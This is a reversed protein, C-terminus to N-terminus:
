RARRVLPSAHLRFGVITILHFFSLQRSETPVLSFTECCHKITPIIDFYIPVRSSYDSKTVNAIGLTPYVYSNWKRSIYCSTRFCRLDRWFRPFVTIRSVLYTDSALWFINFSQCTFEPSLRWCKFLFFVKSKVHGSQESGSVGIKDAVTDFVRAWCVKWRNEIIQSLSWCEKKSINISYKERTLKLKILRISPGGQKVRAISTSKIKNIRM